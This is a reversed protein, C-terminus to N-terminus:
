RLKLMRKTDGIGTHLDHGTEIAPGRESKNEKKHLVKGTSFVKSSFLFDGKQLSADNPFLRSDPFAIERSADWALSSDMLSYLPM